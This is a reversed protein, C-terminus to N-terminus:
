GLGILNDDPVTTAFYIPRKWNNHALIDMMALIDKTVYKGNFTWDMEPTIKDKQAAPLTGTKVVDDPNVTIKFKQTPLYNGLMAVAM